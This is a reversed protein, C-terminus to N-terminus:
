AGWLKRGHQFHLWQITALRLPSDTRQVCGRLLRHNARGNLFVENPAERKACIEGISDSNRSRFQDYM